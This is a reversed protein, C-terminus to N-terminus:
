EPGRVIGIGYILSSVVVCNRVKLFVPVPFFGLVM